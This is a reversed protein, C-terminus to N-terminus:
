LASAKRWSIGQRSQKTENVLRNLIYGHFLALYESNRHAVPIHSPAYLFLFILFRQLTTSCVSVCLHIATQARASLVATEILRSSCVHTCVPALHFSHTLGEAMMHFLIRGPLMWCKTDSLPSSDSSKLLYSVPKIETVHQPQVPM